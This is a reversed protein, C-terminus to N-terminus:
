LPLLWVGLGGRHCVPPMLGPIHMRKGNSSSGRLGFREVFTVSIPVPGRFPQLEDPPVAKKKRASDGSNGLGPMKM